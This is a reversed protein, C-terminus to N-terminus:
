GSVAAEHACQTLMIGLGLYHQEGAGHDATLTQCIHLAGLLTSHIISCRTAVVLNVTEVEVRRITGIAIACM